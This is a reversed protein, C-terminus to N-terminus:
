LLVSPILGDLDTGGKYKTNASSVHKKSSFKLFGLNCFPPLWFRLQSSDTASPSSLPSPASPTSSTSPLSPTSPSSPVCSRLPEGGILAGGEGVLAEGLTSEKRRKGRGM